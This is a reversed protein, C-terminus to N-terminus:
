NGERAKTQRRSFPLILANDQLSSDWWRASVGPPSLRSAFLINAHDYTPRRRGGRFNCVCTVLLHMLSSLRDLSPVFVLATHPVSRLPQEEHVLDRGFLIKRRRCGGPTHSSQTDLSTSALTCQGNLKPDFISLVNTCGQSRAACDPAAGERMLLSPTDQPSLPASYRASRHWNRQASLTFSSAGSLCLFLTTFIALM